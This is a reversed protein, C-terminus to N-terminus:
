LDNANDMRAVQKRINCLASMCRLLIISNAGQVMLKETKRLYWRTARLPCMKKSKFTHVVMEKKSIHHTTQQPISIPLFM